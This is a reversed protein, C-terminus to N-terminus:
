ERRNYLKEYTGESQVWNAHSSIENDPSHLALYTYDIKRDVMRADHTEFYLELRSQKDHCSELMGVLDYGTKPKNM